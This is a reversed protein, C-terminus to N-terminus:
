SSSRLFTFTPILKLESVRVRSLQIMTQRLPLSPSVDWPRNWKKIIEDTAIVLSNSDSWAEMMNRKPNFHTQQGNKAMYVKKYVM